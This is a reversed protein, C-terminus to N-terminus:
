YPPHFTLVPGPTNMRLNMRLFSLYNHFFRVDCVEM